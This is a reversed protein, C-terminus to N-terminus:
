FMFDGCPDWPSTASHCAQAADGLTAPSLEFTQRLSPINRLAACISRSSSQVCMQAQSGLTLQQLASNPVLPVFTSQTYRLLFQVLICLLRFWHFSGLIM